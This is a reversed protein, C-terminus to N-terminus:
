RDSGPVLRIGQDSSRSGQDRRVSAVSGSPGAVSVSDGSASAGRHILFSEVTFDPATQQDRARGAWLQPFTEWDVLQEAPTVAHTRCFNVLHARRGVLEPEGCPPGAIAGV